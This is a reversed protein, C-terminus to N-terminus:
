PLLAILGAFAILREGYRLWECAKSRQVDGITRCEGDHSMRWRAVVGDLADAAGDAHFYIFLVLTDDSPGGSANLATRM